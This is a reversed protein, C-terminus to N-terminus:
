EKSYMKNIRESDDGHERLYESVFQFQTERPIQTLINQLTDCINNQNNGVFHGHGRINGEMPIPQEFSWNFVYTKLGTPIPRIHDKDISVIYGMDRCAMMFDYSMQWYPAKVLKIYELGVRKFLNETSKLITISKDYSTDCEHHIHAFGHFGIEIWDLENVMQAWRKYSDWKFHKANESSFFKSDMPITLLTVKLNPLSRKLRMLDEYGPLLFGFDDVDMTVKM